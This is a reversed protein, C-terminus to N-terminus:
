DEEATFPWAVELTAPKTPKKEEDRMVAYIVIKEPKGDKQHFRYEIERKDDAGTSKFPSGWTRMPKGSKELSSAMSAGKEPTWSTGTVMNSRIVLEKQKKKGPLAEKEVRKYVVFAYYGDDKEVFADQIEMYGLETVKWRADDRPAQVRKKEQDARVSPALLLATLLLPYIFRRM